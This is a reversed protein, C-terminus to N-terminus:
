HASSKCVRLTRLDIRSNVGGKQSLEYLYVQWQWFPPTLESLYTIDSLNKNYQEM